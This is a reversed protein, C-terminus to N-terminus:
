AQKNHILLPLPVPFWYHPSIFYFPLAHWTLHTCYSIQLPDTLLLLSLSPAKHYRPLLWFLKTLSSLQPLNARFIPQILFSPLPPCHGANFREVTVTVNANRGVGGKGGAGGDRETETTTHRENGGDLCKGPLSRARGIECRVARQNAQPMTVTVTCRRM